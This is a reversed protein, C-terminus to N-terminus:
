TRVTARKGGIANTHVHVSTGALVGKLGSSGGVHESHHEGSSSSSLGLSTKGLFDLGHTGSDARVSSTFDGAEVNVAELSVSATSNGHETVSEAVGGEVGCLKLDGLLLLTLGVFSEVLVEFSSHVLGDVEVSETVMHESLWHTTIGIVELVKGRVDERLVAASVEDTVLHDNNSSTGDLVVVEDTLDLLGEAADLLFSSNLLRVSVLTDVNGSEQHHTVILHVVGVNTDEVVSGRDVVLVVVGELEETVHDTVVVDLLVSLMKVIALLLVVGGLTDQSFKGVDGLLLALVEGVRVTTNPSRVQESVLDEDALHVPDASSGRGEVRVVDSLDLNDAGSVGVPVVEHLLLVVALHVRLDASLHELSATADGARLDCLTNAVSIGFEDLSEGVLPEVISLRREGVPSGDLVGGGHSRVLVVLQIAHGSDGVHM